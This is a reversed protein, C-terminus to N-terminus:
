VSSEIHQVEVEETVDNSTNNDDNDDVSVDIDSNSIIKITYVKPDDSELNEPVRMQYNTYPMLGLDKFNGDSCVEEIMDINRIKVVFNINKRIVIEADLEIYEDAREEEWCSYIQTSYYFLGDNDCRQRLYKQFM